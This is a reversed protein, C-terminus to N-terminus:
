LQYMRNPWSNIQFFRSGKMLNQCSKLVRPPGPPLPPPPDTYSASVVLSIPLPPRTGLTFMYLHVSTWYVPLLHLMGAGNPIGLVLEPANVPFLRSEQDNGCLCNTDTYIFIVSMFSAFKHRNKNTWTKNAQLFLYVVTQKNAWLLPQVRLHM